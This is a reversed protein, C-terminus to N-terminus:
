PTPRSVGTPPMAIDSHVRWAVSDPGFWGPDGTDGAPEAAPRRNAGLSRALVGAVPGSLVPSGLGAMAGSAAGIALELPSPTPPVWVRAGPEPQTDVAHPTVTTM